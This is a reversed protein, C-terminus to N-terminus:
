QRNKNKPKPFPPLFKVDLARKNFLLGDGSRTGRGEFQASILQFLLNRILDISLTAGVADYADTVAKVAEELTCGTRWWIYLIAMTPSRNKGQLCNVRKTSLAQSHLKLLLAQVDKEVWKDLEGMMLLSLSEEDEGVLDLSSITISVGKYDVT